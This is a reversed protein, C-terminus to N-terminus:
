WPDRHRLRDEPRRKQPAAHQELAAKRETKMDNLRTYIDEAVGSMKKLVIWDIRELDLKVELRPDFSEYQQNTLADAEENQLRPVWALDLKLRRARLQEALETLIVVLPFKSSM